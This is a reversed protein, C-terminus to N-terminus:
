IGHSMFKENSMIGKKSNCTRCLPQLNEISDEGGKSVPIIHDMTLNSEAGCKLCAYGHIRCVEDRVEERSTYYTAKRRRIDEEHWIRQYYNKLQKRLRVRVERYKEGSIAHIRRLRSLGSRTAHFKDPTTEYKIIGEWTLYVYESYCDLLNEGTESYHEYLLGFVNLDMDYNGRFHIGGFTKSGNLFNIM